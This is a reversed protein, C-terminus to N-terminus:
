GKALESGKITQVTEGKGSPQFWVSHLRQLNVEKMWCSANLIGGRHSKVSWKKKVNFLVGNNQHKNIWECGSPCRPQKWTNVSLFSTEIFIRTCTKTCFYTILEKPYIGLHVLTSQKVKNNNNWHEQQSCSHWPCCLQSALPVKKMSM